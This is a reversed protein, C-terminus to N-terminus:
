GEQGGPCVVLVGLDKEAPCSQLRGEGLRYQQVPNNHVLHLM